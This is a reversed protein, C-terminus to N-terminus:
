SVDDKLRNDIAKVFYVFDDYNKALPIVISDYFYQYLANCLNFVLVLMKEINSYNLSNNESLQELKGFIGKDYHAYYKNRWIKLCSQLKKYKDHEKKLCLLMDQLSNFSHKSFKKDTLKSIFCIEIRCAENEIQMLNNPELLNNIINIVSEEDKKVSLLKSIEVFLYSMCNERSIEFFAPAMNLVDNYHYQAENIQLVTMYAHNIEWSKNMIIKVLNKTKNYYEENM